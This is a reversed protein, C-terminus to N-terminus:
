PRAPCSWDEPIEEVSCPTPPRKRPFTDEHDIAFELTGQSESRIRQSDEPLEEEGNATVESLFALVVTWTETVGGGVRSEDLMSSGHVGNTAKHTRVEHEEFLRFQQQTSELEM